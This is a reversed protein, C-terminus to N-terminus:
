GELAERLMELRLWEEEAAALAAEREALAATKTAFGKPDRGYLGPDELWKRLVAIEQALREMTAPLTSLAHQEKFSLKRAAATAPAARPPEAPKPEPPKPAAPRAVAELAVGAGRQAVMDSYGGAYEQWRGEGESMIVSTCVRDLFDRDHSVVLVTGGYDGLMEELLDLTELDLDNTPEDLVLLNSPAALARALLLRGREG